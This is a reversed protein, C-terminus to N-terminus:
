VKHLQLVINVVCFAVQEASTDFILTVFDIYAEGNNHVLDLWSTVGIESV